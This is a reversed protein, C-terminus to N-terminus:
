YAGAMDMDQTALIDYVCDKRDLEDKLGACAAEAQEETISSEGLRRMRDGRPDDPEICPEPFQPFSSLRFLHTDAPTVQWEEGLDTFDNLVTVGDRSLTEGTTFNGLIGVTNGFAEKSANGFSIKVFEKFASLSIKQGPYVSSLDIDIRTRLPVVTVPFGSFEELEGQYEYNIWYHVDAELRGPKGQIELVDSGIRIVASQIYSWFRILKTRIHVDLGLGNAFNPDKALVIDCQGHYEFHENKWTKFHPDGKSGPDIPPDPGSEGPPITGTPADPFLTPSPGPPTPGM